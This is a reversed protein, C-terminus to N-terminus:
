IQPIQYIFNFSGKDIYIEHMTSDTFFLSNMTFYSSFIFLFLCIKISKSNYDNSSFFTFALLYRMRLVSFYYQPYTRKDAKLAESYSLENFEYDNYYIFSKNKNNKNHMKIKKNHTSNSNLISINNRSSDKGNIKKQSLKLEVKVESSSLKIVKSEDNIKTKTRNKNKFNKPPEKIHSNKKKKQKKKKSEKKKFNGAIEIADNNNM